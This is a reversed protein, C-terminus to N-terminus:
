FFHKVSILKNNSSILLDVFYHEPEKTIDIEEVKFQPYFTEIANIIYHEMDGGQSCDACYTGFSFPNDPDQFLSTRTQIIRKVEDRM